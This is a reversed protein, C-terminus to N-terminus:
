FSYGFYEIDKKYVKAILEMTELTYYEQYPKNSLNKTTNLLPLNEDVGINNAIIKFDEHLNEFRGVFDISMESNDDLLWEIQPAFLLPRNYYYFDKQEGITKWLWDEFPIPFDKMKQQNTKINYKYHSVVKDWPNRVFAFTYANDWEERGIRRIVERVPLHLKKKLHIANGVSTGATKILHIFIYNEGDAKKRLPSAEVVGFTYHRYLNSLNKFLIM